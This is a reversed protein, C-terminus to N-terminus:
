GQTQFYLSINKLDKHYCNWKSGVQGCWERDREMSEDIETEREKWSEIDM